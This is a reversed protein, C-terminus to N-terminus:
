REASQQVERFLQDIFDEASTSGDLVKQITRFPTAGLDFPINHPGKQGGQKAYSEPVKFTPPEQGSRTDSLVGEFTPANAVRLGMNSKRPDLGAWRLITAIFSTHDFDFKSGEPARFVTGPRVYPSVLITPVRVGMRGFDFKQKSPTSDPKVTVPPPVHDYTGGHEDFSIVFLMDDWHRSNRLANYLENLDYEAPGVWAPSHYDNGQLGVFDDDPLGYGGGWFPEIYSFDPLDLSSLAKLFNQYKDVTGEGAVVARRIHPFIDETYCRGKRTPDMDFMGNYQYYIGWSRQPDALTLANFITPLAYVDIDKNDVAGASSGCVSFARNPNTETPVSSFWRDSIAFARALGYLVPLQEESYAGMVEDPTDYWRKYDGAFGTMPPTAASWRPVSDKGYANWYMQNGVPEWLEDPNYRPQRMPQTRQQTGHSPAFREKDIYNVDGPSLGDFRLSSNLPFVNDPSLEENQYLWGLLNDLSRNELMLMVIKKIQPM